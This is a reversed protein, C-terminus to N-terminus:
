MLLGVAYEIGSDIDDFTTNNVTVSHLFWDQYEKNLYAGYELNDEKYPAPNPDIYYYVNYETGDKLFTARIELDSLRGGSTQTYGLDLIKVLLETCRSNFISAFGRDVKGSNMLPVNEQGSRSYVSIRFDIDM